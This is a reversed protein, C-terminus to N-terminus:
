VAKALPRLHIDTVEASRPLLLANMVVAAVDEPQMLKRPEYARGELRHINEQMPTATRGPYVSVVRVGHENVEQRLSDAMARLAYKCACYQSLNRGAAMGATSNMFIVDGKRERLMPLLAKTLLYPARVNVRYMTDFDQVRSEEFSGSLFLGASHILVDPYGLEQELCDRARLIDRELALDTVCINSRASNPGLAARVSELAAANRGILFVDAGESGMALAMSKGIGSGAGTIAVIKGKFGTENLVM